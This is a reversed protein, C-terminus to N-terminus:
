KTAAARWHSSGPGSRGSSRAGYEASSTIPQRTLSAALFLRIECAPIASGMSAAQRTAEARIGGTTPKVPAALAAEFQEEPVTALQQWRSSQSESIGPDSLTLATGAHSRVVHQNSGSGQAGKAKESAHRAATTSAQVRGYWSGSRPGSVGNTTGSVINLTGSGEVWDLKDQQDEFGLNRLPATFSIGGVNGAALTRLVEVAARSVRVAGTLSGSYLVRAQLRHARAPPEGEFLWLECDDVFLNTIGGNTRVLDFRIRAKRTGAPVPGTLEIIEWSLSKNAPATGPSNTLSGLNVDAASLFTVTCAIKNGPDDNVGGGARSYAQRLRGPM